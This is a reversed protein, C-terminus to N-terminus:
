QGSLKWVCVKYSGSLVSTVDTIGSKEFQPDKALINSLCNVTCGHTFHENIAEYLEPTSKPGNTNITKAIFQRIKVQKLKM